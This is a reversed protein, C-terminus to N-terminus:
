AFVEALEIRLGSFIASQVVETAPQLGIYREQENLVYILVIEDNPEVLWYERVGAEEYLEYKESMERKTNGPSLIEIVLDPAGNCGQEDLKTEDCIVCLDPQVVTFIDKSAKKSKKRNYLRVDFPAYFLQCQNDRFLNGMQLHLRASIRQHRVSPAPTMKQIKGRLLEVREQFQWTLYDAYSYTGDLDLQSLDTIAPM